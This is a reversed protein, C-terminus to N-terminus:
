IHILSLYYEAINDIFGLMIVHEDLHLSHILNKLDDERYGQGIIFYVIKNFRKILEPMLRIMFEHNKEDSLRGISGLVIHNDVSHKAKLSAAIAKDFIYDAPLVANPFVSLEEKPVQRKYVDLHTYSVPTDMMEELKRRSEHLLRIDTPYQIDQPACSADLILTGHNESNMGSDDSPEASAPFGGGEGSDDRSDDDPHLKSDVVWQNVQAIVDAPFRKRFHTLLSAYIHILSLHM